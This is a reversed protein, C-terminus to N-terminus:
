PQVKPDARVVQGQEVTLHSGSTELWYMLNEMGDAATDTLPDHSGDQEQSHFLGFSHGLEHGMTIAMLQADGGFSSCLTEASVVVGSHPTGLMPSAPIGGSIGVVGSVSGNKDTIARLVVVDMSAAMKQNSTAALLVNDLDPFQTTNDTRITDAVSSVDQYTVKSITVGIQSYIQKLDTVAGALVQPATSATMPSCSSSLDTLYFNLQVTGTTQPAPALKIFVQSDITGANSSQIDFQYLGHQLTFRPSNPVLMTSSSETPEYRIALAEFDATSM